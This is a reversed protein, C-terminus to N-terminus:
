NPNNRSREMVRKRAIDINCLIAYFQANPTLTKAWQFYEARKEETFQLYKDLDINNDKNVNEIKYLDIM